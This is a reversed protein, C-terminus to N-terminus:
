VILNGLKVRKGGPWRSNQESKLKHYRAVKASLAGADLPYKLFYFNKTLIFNKSDNLRSFSSLLMFTLRKSKLLYKLLGRVKEGYHKLEQVDKVSCLVIMQSQDSSSLLIQLQDMRVPVLVYGLDRFTQDFVFFTKPLSEELTLYFIFPQNVKDM